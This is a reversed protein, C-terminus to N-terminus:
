WICGQTYAAISTVPAWVAPNGSGPDTEFMYWAVGNVKSGKPSQYLTTGGAFTGVQTGNPQNYFPANQKAQFQCSGPPFDKVNPQVLGYTVNVSAPSANPSQPSSAVIRGASGAAVNVTLTVAWPGSGGTGANPSQITTAQEALKVNNNDYATVVVNGEFLGGGEGKVEFTNSLVAGSAPATITIFSKV